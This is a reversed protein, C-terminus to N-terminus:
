EEEFEVEAGYLEAAGVTVVKMGAPPGESLVAKDGNIHDVTIPHRFFVLPEPNTYTWAKGETDYLIASYPIVVRQAGNVTEDAATATQIDLRKAAEESLTARAPQKGDLHEITITKQEETDPANGAAPANAGCASLFMGAILLAVALGSINRKM